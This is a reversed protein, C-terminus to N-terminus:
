PAPIEKGELALLGFRLARELREQMEFNQDRQANEIEALIMKVFVGRTMPERSLADLAFPPLTHDQFTVEAFADGVAARLANADLDLTTHPAGQLKVRLAFQKGVREAEFMARVREAIQDRSTFGGVDLEVTRYEWQHIQHPTVQWARGDWEAFLVSHEYAEDFGLPEPSGPYCLLPNPEPYLIRRHIHGLLALSFGSRQIDAASFPCFAGKGNGMTLRMDTGHLLLLAPKADPLHFDALLPQFFAPSDHAAGWLDLDDALPVRTLRPERFIHVNHSWAITNYPSQPTFPDHNGPSVFVRMPALQAFQQQLFHATDTTVRESEFLDGGLTVADVNKERALLFARKLVDRLNERRLNALNSYTGSNGFSVDLHLDALHLLRFAM